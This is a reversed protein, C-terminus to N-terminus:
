RSLLYYIYQQIPRVPYADDAGKSTFPNVYPESITIDNALYYTGAPDMAAFDAASSIATGEPAAAVSFSCLAAIMCIAMILSLAKKMNKDKRVFINRM